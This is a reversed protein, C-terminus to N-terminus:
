NYCTPNRSQTSWTTINRKTGVGLINTDDILLNYGNGINLGWYDSRSVEQPWNNKGTSKNTHTYQISTAAPKITLYYGGGIDLKYTDSILLEYADGVIEVPPPADFNIPKRSVTTWVPM